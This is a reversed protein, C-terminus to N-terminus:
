SWTNGFRCRMTYTSIFRVYRRAPMVCLIVKCLCDGAHVLSLCFADLLYVRVYYTLLSLLIRYYSVSGVGCRVTSATPGGALINPKL